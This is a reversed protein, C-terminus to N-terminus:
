VEDERAYFSGNYVGQAPDTGLWQYHYLGSEALTLEMWYKGVALKTVQVLAYTYSTSVGAPTRVKLTVATPDTDVTAKTFQGSIRVRDGKDFAAITM